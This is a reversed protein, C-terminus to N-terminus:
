RALGELAAHTNSTASVRQVGVRAGFQGSFDTLRPRQEWDLRGQWTNHLELARDFDAFVRTKHQVWLPAVLSNKETEGTIRHIEIKPDMREVLDVLLAVYTSQDMLEFPAKQYIYALKTKEIVHLMQLKIGDTGCAEALRVTQMMDDRSEGPFGLIVHTVVPIGADALLAMAHVYDEVSEQRNVWELRNQFASQLGLEVRFWPVRKQYELLVEINEPAVCDPRTAVSMGVIDPDMLASEYRQRLVAPTAYTNTFAQLYVIFKEAGYRRTAFGRGQRFQEQISQSPDQHASFSGTQSCYACGGFAKSGDRNPCDFGADIGVKYVRTGFERELNDKFYNWRLRAM